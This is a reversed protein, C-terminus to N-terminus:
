KFNLLYFIFMFLFFIKKLLLLDFKKLKIFILGFFIILFISLNIIASGIALSVPFLLLFLLYINDLNKNLVKILM